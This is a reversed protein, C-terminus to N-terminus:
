KSMLMQWLDPRVFKQLEQIIADDSFSLTMKQDLLHVEVGGGISDKLVLGQSGLKEKSSQLLFENVERPDINRSLEVSFDGSFGEKELSSLLVDVIKALLKPDQVEQQVKEKLVQSFIADCLGEKLEGLLLHFANRVSARMGVEAQRLSEQHEKKHQKIKEQVSSLINQAEERAAQIIVEAEKQAPEITDKRLLDCIRKVKETGTSTIM